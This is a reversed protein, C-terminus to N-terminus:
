ENARLTVSQRRRCVVLVMVVVVVMVGAAVAAIIIIKDQTLKVIFPTGSTTNNTNTTKTTTNTFPPQQCSPLHEPSVTTSVKAVNCGELAYRKIWRSSGYAVVTVRIPQRSASESECWKRCKGTRFRLAVKNETLGTWVLFERWTGDSPVCEAPLWATHNTGDTEQVDLRVGQFNSEPKVFLILDYKIEAFRVRVIVKTQGEKVVTDASSCDVALTPSPATGPSLAMLLLLLPPPLSRAM